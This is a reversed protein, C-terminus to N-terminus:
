RPESNIFNVWKIKEDANNNLEPIKSLCFDYIKQAKAIALSAAADTPAIETQKPWLDNFLHNASILNNASHRFWNRTNDIDNM